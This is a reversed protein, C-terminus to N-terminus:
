TERKVGRLLTADLVLLVFAAVVSIGALKLVRLVFRGLGTSMGM